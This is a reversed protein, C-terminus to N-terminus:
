REVIEALMEGVHAREGPRVYLRLVTGSLPSEISARVRGGRLEVLTEGRVVGDAEGLRCSLVECVTVGDGFASPVFIPTTAERAM